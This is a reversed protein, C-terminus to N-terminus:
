FRYSVLFNFMWWNKTTSAAIPNDQVPLWATGRILHQEAMLLWRRSYIWHMGITLDYAYQTHAPRAGSTISEMTLGDRDDKNLFAVDYRTFMGLDHRVLYHIQAYFSEGTQVKVPVYALLNKFELTRRAYEATFIFQESSYQLSYFKPKFQFSADSVPEVALASYSLQLRVDSYALKLTRGFLELTARAITSAQAEFEGPFDSSFLTIELNTSTRPRAVAAQLTFDFLPANYSGYAQVGDSSLAFDRVRDFYISQPLIVGPRTFAVDRTENYLGFPNKIRGARIGGSYNERQLIEYDVLAFDINLQGPLTLGSFEAIHEHNGAQRYLVQASMQLSNFPRVSGNLGIERFNVSGYDSSNGFFDNGSTKIYAQTAFAHYQVGNDFSASSHTNCFLLLWVLVAITTNCRNVTSPYLKSKKM